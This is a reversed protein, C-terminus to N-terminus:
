RRPRRPKSASPETSGAPVRGPALSGHRELADRAQRRAEEAFPGDIRRRAIPTDFVGVMCELAERLDVAAANFSMVEEDSIDFPEQLLARPAGLLSTLVPKGNQWGMALLQGQRVRLRATLGGQAELADAGLPQMLEFDNRPALWEPAEGVGIDVHRTDTNWQLRREEGLIQLAKERTFAVMVTQPSPIASYGYLRVWAEVRLIGDEDPAALEEDHIPFAAKLDWEMTIPRSEVPTGTAPHHGIISVAGDAHLRFRTDVPAEEAPCWQKDNRFWVPTDECPLDVARTRLGGYEILVRKLARLVKVAEARSFIYWVTGLSPAVDADVAGIVSTAEIRAKADAPM